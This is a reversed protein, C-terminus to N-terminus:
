LACVIMGRGFTKRLAGFTVSSLIALWLSSSITACLQRDAALVNGLAQDSRM